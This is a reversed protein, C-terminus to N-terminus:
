KDDYMFRKVTKKRLLCTECITGKDSEGETFIRRYRNYGESEWADKLNPNVKLDAFYVNEDYSYCCPMVRGYANIYMTKFLLPCIFDPNVIADDDEIVEYKEKVETMNTLRTLMVPAIMIDDFYPDFITHIQKEIGITKKTIVCSLATAVNLHNEEIYKHMEIINELVIDYDDKGHIERYMERDSANVSFRISDLGARLVAQMKKPTALAGNTTLFTYKFGLEKAYAIIDELGNYLFAEGAIYFGIERKGIGLEHAQRILEKVFDINLVAPQIEKPAYMGHYPCFVCRQNCTNNLEINLCEPLPPNASFDGTEGLRKKLHERMIKRESMKEEMCMM